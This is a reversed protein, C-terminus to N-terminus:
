RGIKSVSGGPRRRGQRRRWEQFFRIVDEAGRLSAYPVLVPRKCQRCYLEIGEATARALASRCVCRLNGREEVM